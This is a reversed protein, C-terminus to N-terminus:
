RCLKHSLIHNQGMVNGDDEVRQPFIFQKRRLFAIPLEIEREGRVNIALGIREIPCTM